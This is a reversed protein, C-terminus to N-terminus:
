FNPLFTTIHHPKKEDNMPKLKTTKYVGQSKNNVPNFTPQFPSSISVVYLFFCFIREM